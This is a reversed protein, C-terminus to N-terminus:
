SEPEKHKYEHDLIAALLKEPPDTKCVFANAGATLAARRTEARGSIAIIILDPYIERLVCLLEVWAAGRLGCDLLVM